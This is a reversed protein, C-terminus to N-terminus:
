QGSRRCAGSPVHRAQASDQVPHRRPAQEPGGSIARGLRRLPPLRLADKHEAEADLWKAVHIAFSRETLPELMLTELDSALAEGDIAASEGATQGTLAKRQVFQRKVFYLPALENHRAQLARLESPFASSNASSITSIRPSKSLSSPVRNRPCPSPILAPPRCAFTSTPRRKRLHHCSLCRRPAGARRPM